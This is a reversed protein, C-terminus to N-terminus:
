VYCVDEICIYLKGKWKYMYCLGQEFIDFFTLTEDVINEESIMCYMSSTCNPLINQFIDKEQKVKEYVARIHHLYISFRLQTM